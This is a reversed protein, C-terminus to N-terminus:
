SKNEGSNIHRAIKSKARIRPGYFFLVYPIPIMLVAVAGFLTNAWRYTMRAYMQTTFLPFILAMINRLLSQGALASSAWSGYCDALYVFVSQYIVYAACMFVALGVCPAPWPVHPSATWAYIFMGAPFLLAALLATYLRAELGRAPFRLRYIREQATNLLFGLLAGICLAAFVSGSQGTSFGYVSSFLAGISEIMVYLVAWAFGIWLTFAFVVPETFLLYVPRTCSVRLLSWLGPRGLESPARYREDGTEKRVQKAIRALVITARTEHTLFLALLLYAGGFIMGVWDIWRWRLAQNTDIWGAVVPGVCTGLLATLSYLSMPLGRQSPEWIDAITGGVLVAGTSSFCGSIFRGVIVVAINPALAVMLEALVFGLASALYVPRRGLEESFSSSALPFFAFGLLFLSLGLTAEMRTCGLDSMMSDYGLSYASISASIIATFTIAVFTITWKKAYSFNIPARPDNEDFEVLLFDPQEKELVSISRASKDDKEDPTMTVTITSAGMSPIIDIELDDAM